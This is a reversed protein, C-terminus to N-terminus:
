ILNKIEDVENSTSLLENRKQKIYYQLQSLSPQPLDLMENSRIEATNFHTFIDIPHVDRVNNRLIQDIFAKVAAHIGRKHKGSPDIPVPHDDELQLIVAKNCTTCKKFKYTINFQGCLLGCFKQTQIRFFWM